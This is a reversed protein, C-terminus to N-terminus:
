SRVMGSFNCVVSIFGDIFTPNYRNYVVKLLRESLCRTMTTMIMRICQSNTTRANFQVTNLSTFENFLDFLRTIKRFM